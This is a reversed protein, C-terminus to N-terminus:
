SKVLEVRRNNQRGEATGNPSVPKTSGFGRTQLRAADIGQTSVLYDKVAAARKESLTLNSADGGVNDTHGEIVLKLDAHGKLMQAIEKLTPTSEPRVHASGFDFLIGHTSVRGKSALADYLKPGGAAVTINGVLTTGYSPLEVEIKNSRGLNATPVNAVRSQGMYVKAYKADVLIAVHFVKDKAPPEMDGLADIGGGKIGGHHGGAEMIVYSYQSGNAFHVELAGALGNSAHDFEMTFREPLAEPLTIV